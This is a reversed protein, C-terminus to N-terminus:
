LAHSTRAEILKDRRRRQTDFVNGVDVSTINDGSHTSRHYVVPIYGATVLGQLAHMAATSLADRDASALLGGAIVFTVAPPPMYFRGRGARTALATRLSVTVACQPPTSIGAATGALALTAQTVAVQKGTLSNLSATKALTLTTGANCRPGWGTGAGTDTWLSNLAATWATNAGALNGAGLDNTHLNIVWTEGGIAGSGSHHYFTV